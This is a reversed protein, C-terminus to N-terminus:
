MDTFYVYSVPDVERIDACVMNLDTGDDVEAVQECEDKV